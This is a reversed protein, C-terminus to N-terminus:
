SGSKFTFFVARDPSFPRFRSGYDRFITGIANKFGDNRHASAELEAQSHFTIEFSPYGYGSSRVMSPPHLVQAYAEKFAAEVLMNTRERERRVRPQNLIVLGVVIALGTGVYLPYNWLARAFLAIGTGFALLGGLVYRLAWLKKM